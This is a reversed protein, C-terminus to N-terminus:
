EPRGYIWIEAINMYGYPGQAVPQNAYLEDAYKQCILTVRGGVIQGTNGFKTQISQGDIYLVTFFDIFDNRVGHKTGILDATNVLIVYEIFVRQKFTAKIWHPAYQGRNTSSRTDELGDFALEATQNGSFHDSSQTATQVFSQLQQPPVCKYSGYCEDKCVHYDPCPSKRACVTTTPGHEKYLAGDVPTQHNSNIEENEDNVCFCQKEEEVFFSLKSKRQCKLACEIPSTAVVPKSTDDASTTNHQKEKGIYWQSYVLVLKSLLIYLHM